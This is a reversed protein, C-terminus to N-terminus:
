PIKLLYLLILLFNKDTTKHTHMISVITGNAKAASPSVAVGELSVASAAVKELSPVVRFPSLPKAVAM